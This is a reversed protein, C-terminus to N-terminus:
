LECEINGLAEDIADRRRDDFDAEMDDEDPEDSDPEDVASEKDDEDANEEDADEQAAYYDKWAKVREELDDIESLATELEDAQSNISEAWSECQQAREELMQGTDGQQLGEPMNEFKDTQEQGLEEVTTAVDRLDDASKINDSTLSEDQITYVQSLFDSRTLQSRKPPTKSCIKPGGRGGVMFAWHYYTDGVAIGYQPIAKRAKLVKTVRPM